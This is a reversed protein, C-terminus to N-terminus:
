RVLVVDGKKFIKGCNSEASLFYYYTGGESPTTRYTGDWCYDPSDSEFVREGWRNYVAFYYNKFNSKHKIGFCDNNGDGNPTFANPVFISGATNNYFYVTISDTDQCSGNKVQLTIHQKSILVQM